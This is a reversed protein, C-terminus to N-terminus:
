RSGRLLEELTRARAAHEQTAVEVRDLAANIGRLTAITEQHQVARAARDESLQGDLIRLVAFLAATVGGARLYSDLRRRGPHIAGALTRVSWDRDEISGM